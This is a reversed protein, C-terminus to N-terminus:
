SQRQAVYESGSAKRLFRKYHTGSQATRCTCIAKDDGKESEIIKGTTPCFHLDFLAESM